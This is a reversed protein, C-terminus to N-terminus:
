NKRKLMAKTIWVNLLYAAYIVNKSNSWTDRRIRYKRGTANYKIYTTKDVLNNCSDCNKYSCKTYCPDEKLQQSDKINYPDSKM